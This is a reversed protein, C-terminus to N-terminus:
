FCTLITLVRLLKSLEFNRLWIWLTSRGSARSTSVLTSRWLSWGSLLHGVWSWACHEFFRLLSHLLFCYDFCHTAFLLRYYEIITRGLSLLRWCIMLSTVLRSHLLGGSMGREGINSYTVFSFLHCIFYYSFTLFRWSAILLNFIYNMEYSWLEFQIM